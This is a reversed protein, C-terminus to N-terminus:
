LMIEEKYLGIYQIIEIFSQEFVILCGSPHIENCKTYKKLVYIQKYDRMRIRVNLVISQYGLM